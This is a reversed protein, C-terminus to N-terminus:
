ALYHTRLDSAAQYLSLRMTFNKTECRSVIQLMDRGAPALKKVASKLTSDQGVHLSCIGKKNIDFSNNAPAERSTAALWIRHVVAAHMKGIQLM